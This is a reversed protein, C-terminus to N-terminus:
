FLDRPGEGANPPSAPKTPGRRPVDNSLAHRDITAAGDFPRTVPQGEADVRELLEIRREARELLQYCEKLRRVGLEYRALSDSLGLQGEELQRVIQELEALSAEFSPERAPPALAPQDAAQAGESEIAGPATEIL